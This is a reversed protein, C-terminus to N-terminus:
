LWLGASLRSPMSICTACSVQAVATHLAARIEPHWRSGGAKAAALRRKAEELNAEAVQWPVPLAERRRRVEHAAADQTIQLLSSLGRKPESADVWADAGMAIDRQSSCTEGPSAPTAAGSLRKDDSDKHAREEGSVMRPPRVVGSGAGRSDGTASGTHRLPTGVASGGRHGAGPSGVTRSMGGGASGAPPASAVSFVSGRVTGHEAAGRSTHLTTVSPVHRSPTAVAAAASSDVVGAASGPLSKQKKGLKQM